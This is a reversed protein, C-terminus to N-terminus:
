SHLIDQRKEAGYNPKMIKFSRKISGYFKYEILRKDIQNNKVLSNKFCNLCAMRKCSSLYCLAFLFM